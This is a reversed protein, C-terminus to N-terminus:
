KWGQKAAYRKFSAWAEALDPDKAPAPTPPAPTPKPQSLPVPVTVDGDDALLGLFPLRPVYFSGALGWGATWHNLGKYADLVPNYGYVVYEHGGAVGSNKDPVIIGQTDTNMMSNDWRTGVMVPGKALAADFAQPGFATRYGSFYGLKVGAKAGSGGDSGTDDPKWQGPISDLVTATHYFLDGQVQPSSALVAQEGDALANWYLDFGLIDLVSYGVCAGKNGQDSVPLNTHHEIAVPAGYQKDTTRYDWNRSDHVVHRGFLVDHQEFQHIKITYTM